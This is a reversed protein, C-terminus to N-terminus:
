YAETPRGPRIAAPRGLSYLGTLQHPHSSDCSLYQSNTSSTGQPGQWLQGLHTYVYSTGYGANQLTNALTGTGCTGNGPLPQSGSNGAWIFFRVV